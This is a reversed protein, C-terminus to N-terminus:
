EEFPTDYLSFFMDVLYAYVYYLERNGYDYSCHLRVYLELVDDDLPFFLIIQRPWQFTETTKKELM